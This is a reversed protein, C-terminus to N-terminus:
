SVQTWRLATGRLDRGDTQGYTYRRDNRPLSETFIGRSNSPFPEAFVKGRCRICLCCYFFQQIRQKRYPVHRIMSLLRNTRGLVKRQYKFEDMSFM